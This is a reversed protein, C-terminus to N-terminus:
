LNPSGPQVPQGYAPSTKNYFPSPSAYAPSDFGAYLDGRPSFAGNRDAAFPTANPTYNSPTVNQNLMPTINIMPTMSQTEDDQNM